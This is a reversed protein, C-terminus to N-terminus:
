RLPSLLLVIFHHLRLLHFVLLFGAAPYITKFVLNGQDGACRGAEPRSKGFGQRQAAGLDRERRPTRVLGARERLLAEGPEAIQEVAILTPGRFLPPGVEAHSEAHLVRRHRRQNHFASGGLATAAALLAQEHAHAAAQIPMVYELAVGLAIALAGASALMLM